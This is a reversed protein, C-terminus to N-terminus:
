KDCNTMITSTEKNDTEELVHARHLHIGGEQEGKRSWKKACHRACLLHEFFIQQTFPCVFSCMMLFQTKSLSLLFFWHFLFLTTLSNLSFGFSCSNYLGFSNQSPYLSSENADPAMFIAYLLFLHFYQHNM